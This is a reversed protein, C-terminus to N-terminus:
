FYLSHFPVETHGCKGLGVEFIVTAVKV